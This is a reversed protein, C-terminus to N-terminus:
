RKVVLDIKKSKDFKYLQSKIYNNILADNLCIRAKARIEEAERIKKDANCREMYHNYFCIREHELKARLQGHKDECLFSPFEQKEIELLASSYPVWEKPWVFSNHLAELGERDNLITQHLKRNVM